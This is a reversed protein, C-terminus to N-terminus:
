FLETQPVYAVTRAQEDSEFRSTQWWWGVMKLEMMMEDGAGRIFTMVAMM